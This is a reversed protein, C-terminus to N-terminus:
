SLAGAFFLLSLIFAVLGITGILDGLVSNDLYRIVRILRGSAARRSRFQDAM